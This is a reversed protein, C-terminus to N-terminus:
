PSALTQPFLGAHGQRTEDGPGSAGPGGGSRWGAAAKGQAPRYAISLEVCCGRWVTWPVSRVVPGHAGQRDSYQV